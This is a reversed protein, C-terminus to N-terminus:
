TQRAEFVVVIESDKSLQAKLPRTLGNHMFVFADRLFRQSRTLHTPQEGCRECRASTDHGLYLSSGLGKPLTVPKRVTWGTTESSLLRFRWPPLLEEVQTKSFSRQHHDRHYIHGCAPCQIQSWGLDEHLPVNILLYRSCVRMLEGLAKLFVPEPLHELVDCCIVMEFSQDAFPLADATSQVGHLKGPAGKPDWSSLLQVLGSRTMECGVALPIEGAVQLLVDGSGCGVELLSAPRLSRIRESLTHIRRENGPDRPGQGAEQWHKEFLIRSPSVPM